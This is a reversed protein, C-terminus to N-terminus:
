KVVAIKIIVSEKKGSDSSAEVRAFYIGSQISTVDWTSENELGAKGFDNIEAAKDGSLDFIKINIKANEALYYRIYTKGSYVPNPYNYARQTPFFRNDINKSSVENIYASNLNNGHLGSYLVNGSAGAIQWVFVNGSADINGICLKDNVNFLIPSSANSAAITIPFGTLSKGSIGDCAYIGADTLSYLTTSNTNTLKAAAPKYAGSSVSSILVPFNTALVGNINHAYLRDGAQFCIYNAGDQKLDVVSFSSIKSIDSLTFSASISGNTFVLFQNGTLLVIAQSENASNKTVAFDIVEGPSSINIGDSSNLTFASTSPTTNQKIYWYANDSVAIKTVPANLGTSDLVSQLTIGSSNVKFKLLKGSDTGVIVDVSTPTERIVPISTFKGYLRSMTFSNEFINDEWYLSLTSDKVGVIANKSLAPVLSCFDPLVKIQVFQNDYLFLSDGSQVIYTGSNNLTDFFLQNAQSPLALKVTQIPKLVDNGYKLAFSMTKGLVSFDKMTILSGAGSNANSNPRSTANFVNQFFRANNGSYWFDEPLGEGTIIDGFVDTFQEGIDKIGDAEEVFIGRNNKDANIEDTARKANIIKDDVHWIVIGSGPLAWDPDDVDTIVGSLSDINSSYFGTTDKLFTKQIYNPNKFMTLTIGNSDIDRQRNELLFYEDSNIPIKYIITDNTGTNSYSTLHLKQYDGPTITIPQVWGLEIKEWASPAPPFAGNYAFISQGDMLGFKGIATVGTKTDFLDPLGLHSAISSVLLGNITVYFPYKKNDLSTAERTETQPLIMSNTIHFTGNNVPIGVYSNGYYKQFSKLNLYVSPLDRENGLSGPLSVDRGVGAHFVTFLDYDSFNLGPNLSDVLHWVESVFDTLLIFDTSGSLPSYSKMVKSVTFKKPLVIYDVIQKGNSVRNFYNKAFKLHAAFYSSDHPLPDIINLGYNNSYISDFQGNGVTTSSTAPQFEVMVALIKLTTNTKIHKQNSSEGPAPNIAHRSQGIILSQSCFILLFLVPYFNKFKM